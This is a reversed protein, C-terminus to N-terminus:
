IARIASSPSEFGSIPVRSNMLGRVTLYWRRLTKVFSSIVERWSSFIASGSATPRVAKAYAFPGTTHTPEAIGTASAPCFNSSSVISPKWVPNRAPRGASVTGPRSRGPLSARPVLSSPVGSPSGFISCNAWEHSLAAAGSPERATVARETPRVAQCRRVGLDRCARVQQAPRGRERSASGRSGLRVTGQCIRACGGAIVSASIWECPPCLRLVNLLYM